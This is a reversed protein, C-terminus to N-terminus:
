PLRERAMRDIMDNWHGLQSARGARIQENRTRALWLDEANFSYVPVLDPRQSAPKIRKVLNDLILPASSPTPYYALVMHAQDLSTAKVYTIRLKAPDVGMDRLTFFKAIAFDECDGADRVLFELPTAWYDAMRWLLQDDVFQANNFFENVSHLKETDSADLSLHILDQWAILRQEAAAGYQERIQALLKESLGDHHALALSLAGALAIAFTGLGKHRHERRNDVTATKGQDTHHFLRFCLVM